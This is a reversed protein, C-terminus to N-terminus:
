VETNIAGAISKRLDMEQRVIENLLVRPPGLHGSKDLSDRIAKMEGMTGELTIKVTVADIDDVHTKVEM